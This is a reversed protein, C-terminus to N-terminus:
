FYFIIDHDLFLRHLVPNFRGTYPKMRTFIEWLCIGFSYVDQAMTSRINVNNLIEPAIHTITGFRDQRTTRTKWEAIGFDGIKADFHNDILINDAKLDMHLMPPTLRHLYDM